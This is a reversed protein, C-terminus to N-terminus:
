APRCAAPAPLGGRHRGVSRRRADCGKRILQCLTRCIRAFDAPTLSATVSRFPNIQAAAPLAALMLWAVTFPAIIRM